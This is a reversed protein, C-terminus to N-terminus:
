SDVLQIRHEIKETELNFLIIEGKSSALALFKNSM